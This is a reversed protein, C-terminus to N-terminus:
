GTNHGERDDDKIMDEDEDKNKGEDDKTSATSNSPPHIPIFIPYGHNSVYTNPRHQGNPIGEAGPCPDKSPRENSGEGAALHPGPHLPHSPRSIQIYGEDESSVDGMELDEDDAPTTHTNPSSHNIPQRARVADIPPRAQTENTPL